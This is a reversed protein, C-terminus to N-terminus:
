MGFLRQCTWSKSEFTSDKPKPTAQTPKKVNPKGRAYQIFGELPSTDVERTITYFQPNLYIPGKSNEEYYVLGGILTSPSEPFVFRFTLILILSFFKGSMKPGFTLCSSRRKKDFKPHHSFQTEETRAM